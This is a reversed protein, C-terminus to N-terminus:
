YGVSLKSQAAEEVEELTFPMRLPEGELWRDVLDGYHPDDRHHNQGGPLQVWTEIGAEGLENVIRLSAGNSFAFGKGAEIPPNAVNVTLLGGPAAFPGNDLYTAAAGTVENSFTVTHVRGWLWAEPNRGWPGVIDEATSELAQLLVEEQTRPDDRLDTWFLGPTQLLEDPRLLAILLPRVVHNANWGSMEALEHRNGFAEKMLRPLTYHFAACGIAAQRIDADPHPQGNPDGTGLGTPCTFDWAGLVGVLLEAEESLDKGEAAELLKPVVWEGLLSHTDMQMALNSEVTHDDGGAEILDLIRAMRLGPAAISHLLPRGTSTPDGLRTEGTLDQNATAVFGAPPDFARPIEEEDLYGEWEASGDGPLPMWPPLSGALDGVAYSAWPRSPIRAHPYWGIAGEVDALVFNQAGVEFDQLAVRAEAVNKARNLGLFARIENTPEHGTWRVTLAKGGAVDKSVVPGHHPVWELTALHPESQNAVQFIVEKRLIEVEEGEFVVASGEQALEEVYVDMVDFYAVTAGWAVRENRGIVVAPIGPFTAGAVHLTGRGASVADLHALYFIPPNMLALHPDNALIANGSQTRSPALVWNNSGFAEGYGPLFALAESRRALADRVLGSVESLRGAIARVAPPDVAPRERALGAAAPPLTFADVAPRLNFFDVAAEPSIAALKAFADGFAMESNASESLSFTMYRIFAVTDLPEWDPIADAATNIVWTGYEESLRAGNRQARADELWANVGQTYAELLDREEPSLLHWIEEELPEGDATSLFHRMEVDSGLGLIGVLSALRGRALRRQLDMQFFRSNAHFYGLVRICDGDTLCRAHLIGDDDFSVYATGEMGRIRLDYNGPRPEDPPVEDEGCAGLAVLLALAGWRLKASEM